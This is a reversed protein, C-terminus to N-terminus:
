STTPRYRFGGVFATTTLRSSFVCIWARLRVWGKSGKRGPQRGALGVVIAAVAQCAQIRRQFDRAAADQALTGRAVGAGVEQAEHLTDRTTVAAPRQM